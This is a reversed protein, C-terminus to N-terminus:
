RPLAIAAIRWSGPGAGPADWRSRVTWGLQPSFWQTRTARWGDAGTVTEEVVLAEVPGFDTEVTETGTVAIDHTLVGGDGAQSRFTASRGVELPWLARYAGAGPGEQPPAACRFCFPLETVREGERLMTVTFGESALVRSTELRGDDHRVVVITGSAPPEYGSTAAAAPDQPVASVGPTAPADATECGAAALLVATLGLSIRKM